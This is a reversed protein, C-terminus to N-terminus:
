THQLCLAYKNAEESSAQGSIGAIGRRIDMGFCFHLAHYTTDRNSVAGQKYPCRPCLDRDIREAESLDTPKISSMAKGYEFEAM